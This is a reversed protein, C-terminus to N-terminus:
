SVAASAVTATAATRALPFAPVLLSTGGFVQWQGESTARFHWSVIFLSPPPTPPLPLDFCTLSGWSDPGM